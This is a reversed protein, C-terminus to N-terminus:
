AVRRGHRTRKSRSNDVERESWETLHPQGRLLKPVIAAVKPKFSMFYKMMDMAHDNGDQPMDISEGSTNKKWYYSGAEDSFWTLERAVYLRPAGLRMTIPHMHTPDCYLYSQCKLIGNIIDNNARRMAIGEGAFLTATSEGITGQTQGKRIFISPDALIKGEYMEEHLWDYRIEKIRKAYQDILLGTEYFGDAIFTNGAFDTFGFGYCAPVIMGHDYAETITPRFGALLLAHYYARIDAQSLMNADETFQPYILGEYGEWKGLLFRDRMQGKYSAELTKIFDAPLNDKNEYTSGEHLEIIPVPMGNDDLVPEGEEDTECLLDPNVIGKGLDHLPKVLKKYVWNRTPNSLIIMWRPGSRPMDKVPTFEYDGALPTSGRLRGLLDVFDKHTIEPDEIQDIVIWDYTASLLNSTTSENGAKGQQQIYRFNITTGNKLTCTNSANASMPFSKIWTKPCWKLFEKRITDNLKPYTSRAILGNSGPYARALSMAKIVATCTKGNGYGGGFMQVKATSKLFRDQLSGEKLRFEPM